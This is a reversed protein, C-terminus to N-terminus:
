IGTRLSTRFAEVILGKLEEHIDGRDRPGAPECIPDVEGVSKLLEDAGPKCLPLFSFHNADDVQMYGAGSVDKALQDSLVSVPIAGVSGLNIFTLPIDIGKLSDRTFAVELGPDVLVAARIRADHNSQEFREKDVTKLDLKPVSILTDNRYGKGGAFCQCDMSAAYDVCYQAYADLDARAGALEMVASGGLSFGLAGIRTADISKSWQPDSTLSTIITSIDDTREWIKPTDEPTSDGSTTGPHDPAAVFFGAQALATAIWAMGVGRSGSGHSLMILPKPTSPATSNSIAPAGAFIRNDGVARMEGKDKTPYWLTVSLNKGRATSAITIDRTGVADEALAPQHTFATLMLTASLMSRM